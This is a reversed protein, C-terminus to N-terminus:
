SHGTHSRFTYLPGWSKTAIDVIELSNRETFWAFELGNASTEGWCRGGFEKGFHANVDGMIIVGGNPDPRDVLSELM